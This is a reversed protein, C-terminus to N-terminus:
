EHTKKLPISVLVPIGLKREVEEPSLFVQHLSQKILVALLAALIGLPLSIGFIMLLLNTGSSPPRPEEIVRINDMKQRDMEELIRAEELKQSYTKLNDALLDRQITLQNFESELHDFQRLRARITDQEGKLAVIREGISAVEIARKSNESQLEEVLPNRGVRRHGSETPPTFRMNARLAMIQSDLDRVFRSDATFKTLLENKRAELGILTTRASDMGEESIQEQYIQIEKPTKALSVQIATLRASTERFRTEADILSGQLEAQQRILLTKQDTFDSVANAEKFRELTQEQETLRLEFKDREKQFTKSRSQSYIKRRFEMSAKLLASLSEAAVTADKHRFNLEIVSADRVSWVKLHKGFRVVASDILLSENAKLREEVSLPAGELGLLHDAADTIRDFLGWENQRVRREIDPYLAELGVKHIAQRIANPNRFIEAESLVYTEGDMSLTSKNTGLDDKITYEQSPLVLLRAKATYVKGGIWGLVLGLGIVATFTSVCLQKERYLQTLLERLGFNKAKEM